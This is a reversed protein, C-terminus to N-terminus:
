VGQISQNYQEANEVFTGYIVMSYGVHINDISPVEIKVSTAFDKNEDFNCGIKHLPKDSFKHFFGVIKKDENLKVDVIM